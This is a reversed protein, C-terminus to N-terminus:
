QKRNTFSSMYWAEQEANAAAANIIMNIQLFDAAEQSCEVVVIATGHDVIARVLVSGAQQLHLM